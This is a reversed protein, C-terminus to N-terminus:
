DPTRANRFLGVTRTTGEAYAFVRREGARLELSDKIGGQVQVTNGGELPHALQCGEHIRISLQGPADAVVAMNVSRARNQVNMAPYAKKEMSCLNSRINVNG